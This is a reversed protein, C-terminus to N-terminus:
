TLLILYHIRQVQGEAGPIKYCEAISHDSKCDIIQVQGEAGPM